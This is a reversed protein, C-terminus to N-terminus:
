SPGPIPVIYRGTEGVVIVIKGGKEAIERLANVLMYMQVIDSPKVGSEMAIKKIAEAMASARIITANAEAQALVIEKRARFESAIMEQEASLKEAIAQTFRDPLRIERLDVGELIISNVLSKEKSLRELLLNTIQNAIEDRKEITEMATYKSIVDRIVERIIPIITRHKWDAYPYNKYLEIINKPDVRWRVTIDVDVTLGDKTICGVAPFDGTEGTTEDTWMHVTDTAVYVKVVYTWVPRTFWTSYTGDGVTWMNKSIPDVVIAVEGVSIMTVLTASIGIFILLIIIVIVAISKVIKSALLRRATRRGFRYEENRPRWGM